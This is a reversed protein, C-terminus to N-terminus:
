KSRTEKLEDAFLERLATLERETPHDGSDVIGLVRGIIRVNDDENKEGFPLAPNVSELKYSATVRKIIGGNATTCIVDQGPHAFDTYEVYVLDGDHYVPLMSDGSVTIVADARKNCDNKRIFIRDSGDLYDSGQGAAARTQPKELIIFSNKLYREQEALEEDLIDYVIRAAARRNTEGLMRFNRILNREDKSLGDDQIGYLDGVTIDLIACLKVILEHEPKYRDAVWNTVTNRSVGLMDALSTQSIKKAKMAQQIISGFLVKGSTDTHIDM